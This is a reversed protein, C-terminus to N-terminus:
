PAEPQSLGCRVKVGSVPWVPLTVAVWAAAGAAVGTGVLGSQSSPMMAPSSDSTATLFSRLTQIPERPYESVCRSRRPGNNRMISLCQVWQIGELRPLAPRLRLGYGIGASGILFYYYSKVQTTGEAAKAPARLRTM